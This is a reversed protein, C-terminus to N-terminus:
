SRGAPLTATEGTCVCEGGRGCSGCPTGDARTSRRRRWVRAAVLLGAVVILAAGGFDLWGDLAAAIAGGSIVGSAILIPVTCCVVCALGGLGAPLWRRGTVDGGGTTGSM